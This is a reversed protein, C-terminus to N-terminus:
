RFADRDTTGMPKTALIFVIFFYKESTLVLLIFWVYSRSKKGMRRSLVSLAFDTPPGFSNFLKKRM